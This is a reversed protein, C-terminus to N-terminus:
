NKHFYKEDLNPVDNFTEYNLIYEEIKQNIKLNSINILM